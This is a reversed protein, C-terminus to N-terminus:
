GARWLQHPTRDRRGTFPVAESAGTRASTYAACLVDLVLRGFAPGVTPARALAIDDDLAAMQGVFGLHHLQDTALGPPAPPLKLAAGNLEVSPEPVLELRVASTASAAQADWTAAAARWTARVSARLGTDFSLTISGDDDVALDEHRGLDAEVAVVRAPAALLLAVALAHVGLDFLAGGGWAPDFRDTGAEPRGQAFRVELHTLAGIRRCTEVARTVAPSHVLNEAYAVRGRDALAVIADADALTAALPAEVVALAGGAVAREAERRHLAPPTAVLVADAGGPLDEYRCPTAGTQRARRAASAEHRSAVLSVDVGDVAAAALAHVATVWGAGALALTSV